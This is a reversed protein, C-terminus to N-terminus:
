RGSVWTYPFASAEDSWDQCGVLRRKQLAGVDYLIQDLVVERPRAYGMIELQRQRTRRLSWARTRQEEREGRARHEMERQAYLTLPM